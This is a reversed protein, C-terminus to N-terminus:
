RLTWHHRQNACKCVYAHKKTGAVSQVQTRMPQVGCSRERLGAQVADSVTDDTRNVPWHSSTMHGGSHKLSPHPKVVKM